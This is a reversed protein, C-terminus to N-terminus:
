RKSIIDYLLPNAINKEHLVGYIAQELKNKIMIGNRWDYRRWSMILSKDCLGVNRWWLWTKRDHFDDVDRDYVDTGDPNGM